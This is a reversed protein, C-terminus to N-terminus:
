SDSEIINTDTVDCFAAQILIECLIFTRFFTESMCLSVVAFVNEMERYGTVKM